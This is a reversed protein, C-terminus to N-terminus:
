IEHPFFIYKTGKKIIYINKELSHKKKVFNSSLKTVMFTDLFYM